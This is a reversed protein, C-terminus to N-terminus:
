NWALAARGQWYDDPRESVEALAESAADDWPVQLAALNSRLQAETSAGSLVVNSWPQALAAALALADQTTELREVQQALLRRRHSFDPEQNRQTLRGNALAEKVVVGRGEASWEALASGSSPELLNWTSQAVDFLPQGDIEIEAARRLTDAQTPGSTTLGVALGGAKLAALRKLVATDDLVGSALTASHIQYLGLWDGLARETEHWQRELVALRHDKVEHVDADLRWDATYTYGWKSGVAPRDSGQASGITARKSELWDGLFAEALGYSRAADFYRVGLSWALDLMRHCHARLAGKDSEPGLDRGHGLNIYAPRGLAALGLGIPTASVATTGLPERQMANMQEDSADRQIL